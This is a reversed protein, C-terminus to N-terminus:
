RPHSPTWGSSVCSAAPPTTSTTIAARTGACVRKSNTYILVLAENASWQYDDISLPRTADRPILNGASVLVTQKGTAPDIRVIDEAGKATESPELRTYGGQKPLWHVSGYGAAGFEGSAFIRDISLRGPDAEKQQAPAVPASALFLLALVVFRPCAHRVAFM